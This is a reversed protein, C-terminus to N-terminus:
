RRSEGGVSQEFSLKPTSMEEFSLADDDNSKLKEATPRRRQPQQAVKNRGGGMQPLSKRSDPTAQLSSQEQGETPVVTDQCCACDIVNSMWTALQEKMRQMPTSENQLRQHIVKSQLKDVNYSGMTSNSRTFRPQPLTHPQSSQAASSTRNDINDTSGLKAGGGFRTSPVEKTPTLVMTRLLATGMQQKGAGDPGDRKPIRDSSLHAKLYAMFIEYSNSNDLSFEVYGHSLTHLFIRYFPNRGNNKNSCSPPPSSVPPTTAAATNGDGGGAAKATGVDSSFFEGAGGANSGGNRGPVEEDVSLVDGLPISVPELKEPSSGSGGGNDAEDEMNAVGGLNANAFANAAGLSRMRLHGGSGGMRRRSRSRSRSRTSSSTRGSVSRSRFSGNVFDSQSSSVVSSNGGVSVGSSTRAVLPSSYRSPHKPLGLPKNTILPHSRISHDLAHNPISNHSGNIVANKEEDLSVDVMGDSDQQQQHQQEGNMDL